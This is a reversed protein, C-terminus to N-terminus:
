STLFGLGEKGSAFDARIRATVEGGPKADPAARGRNSPEEHAVDLSLTM